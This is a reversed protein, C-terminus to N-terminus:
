SLREFPKLGLKLALADSSLPLPPLPPQPPQPPEATAATPPEAPVSPTMMAPVSTPAEVAAPPTAVPEVPPPAAIQEFAPPPAVPGAPPPAAIQEATAAGPDQPEGAADPTTNMPDSM